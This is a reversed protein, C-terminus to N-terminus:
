RGRQGRGRGAVALVGLLVGVLMTGAFVVRLFWIGADPNNGVVSPSLSILLTTGGGLFFLIGAAAKGM